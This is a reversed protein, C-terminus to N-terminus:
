RKVNQRDIFERISVIQALHENDHGILIEVHKRLKTVSFTEHECTRLWQQHTLGRLYDTTTAREAALQDILAPVSKSLDHSFPDPHIFPERPNDHEVMRVFRARFKVEIDALHAIVDKVCWADSSPRVLAAAEDVRRTLRTLDRPTGDLAEILMQYKENLTRPAM